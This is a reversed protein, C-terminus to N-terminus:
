GGRRALEDRAFAEVRVQRTTLDETEAEALLGQAEWARLGPLARSAEPEAHGGADLVLITLTEGDHRWVEPVGLDRYITLADLLPSTIEVEVVLDPPGDRDLDVETKGRVSDAHQLYFCGDPEKGREVGLKEWRTSGAPVCPLGLGRAAGLVFADIRRALTEHRFSPSMLELAGDLYALRPVAAGGRSAAIEQYASWSLRPLLVRQEDHEGVRRPRPGTTQTATAM